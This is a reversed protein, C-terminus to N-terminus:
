LYASDYYAGASIYDNKDTYFKGMEYYTLGRVQPDSIKEKTAKKFFDQAEEPKGARNAM